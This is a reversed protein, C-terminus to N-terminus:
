RINIYFTKIYRIREDAEAWFKSQPFAGTLTQYAELARRINRAAGNLEYARGRLFWGEDIKTTADTFFTELYNLASVADAAGIATRAKELLEDPTLPAERESASPIRLAPEEAVPAAGAADAPSETTEEQMASDSSVPPTEPTVGAQVPAGGDEGMADEDSSDAGNGKYDPARVITKPMGTRATGVSVAIADTVFDDTFVDFYSFHLVYTGKKEAIFTFISADEQLKRQEYRLGQQSTQEGVYVWGHGPYVIELRQKEEMVATRSVAVTRETEPEKSLAVSFIRPPFRGSMEEGFRSSAQYHHDGGHEEFDSILEILTQEYDQQAAKEDESQRDIVIDQATDPPVAPNMAPEAAEQREAVQMQSDQATGAALSVACVTILCFLYIYKKM